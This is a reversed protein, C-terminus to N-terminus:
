RRVHRARTGEPPERIPQGSFDDDNKHRLRPEAAERMHVHTTSVEQLMRSDGRRRERRGGEPRKRATLPVQSVASIVNSSMGIDTM